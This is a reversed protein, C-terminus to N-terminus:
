NQSVYRYGPIFIEKFAEATLVLQQAQLQFIRKGDIYNNGFAARTMTDETLNRYWQSVEIEVEEFDSMDLWKDLMKM